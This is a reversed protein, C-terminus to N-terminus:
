QLLKASTADLHALLGKAGGAALPAIFDSRRNALQSIAGYYVDVIKWAGGAQRMRYSLEVSAGSGPTLHSQVVKDAGRTQVTPSVDFREGAFRDFTHAYSAATLKTFARILAQHDAESMGAWATPGVAYRTMLPLDFADQVVPELKRYRGRAGLAPGEKMVSLLSRDFAEIRAAAPDGASALVSVPAAALVALALSAGALSRPTFPM